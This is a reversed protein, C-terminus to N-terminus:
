SPFAFGWGAFVHHVCAFSVRYLASQERVAAVPGISDECPFIPWCAGEFGCRLPLFVKRPDQCSPSSVGFELAKNLSPHTICLGISTPSSLRDGQYLPHPLVISEVVPTKKLRDDIGLPYM